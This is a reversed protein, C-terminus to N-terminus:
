RKKKEDDRRWRSRREKGVRREESRGSNEMKVTVPYSVGPVVQATMDTFDSYNTGGTNNEIRSFTFNTIHDETSSTTITCYQGNVSTSSLLFLMILAYCAGFVRTYTKKM